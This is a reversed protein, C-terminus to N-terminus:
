SSRASPESMDRMLAHLRDLDECQSIVVLSAGAVLRVNGEPNFRYNGDVDRVALVLAGVSRLNARAPSVGAIPSREPISVEEIRLTGEERM